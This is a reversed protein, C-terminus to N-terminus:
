LIIKLYGLQVRQDNDRCIKRHTKSSSTNDTTRSFTLSLSRKITAEAGHHLRHNIDCDDNYSIFLTFSHIDNENYKETFFIAKGKSIPRVDSM